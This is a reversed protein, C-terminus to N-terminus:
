AAGGLRAHAAQAAAEEVSVLGAIRECVGASFPSVAAAILVDAHLTVRRTDAASQRLAPFAVAHALWTTLLAEFTTLAARLSADAVAAVLAADDAAPVGGPAAGPAAAAAAAAAADRQWRAHNVAGAAQVIADILDIITLSMTSRM